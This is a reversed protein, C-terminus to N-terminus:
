KAMHTSLASIRTLGQIQPCFEGRKKPMSANKLYLSLTTCHNEEIRQKGQMRQLDIEGCLHAMIMIKSTM